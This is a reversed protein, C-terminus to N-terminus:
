MDVGSDWLLAPNTTKAETGRTTERHHPDASASDEVVLATPRPRQVRPKRTATSKVLQVGGNDGAAPIDIHVAEDVVVTNGQGQTAQDNGSNRSDLKAQAEKRCLELLDGNDFGAPGSIDDPEVIGNGGGNDGSSSHESVVPASKIGMGFQINKVFNKAASYFSIIINSFSSIIIFFSIINYQAAYVFYVAHVFYVVYRYMVAQGTIAVVLMVAPPLNVQDGHQEIIEWLLDDYDGRKPFMDKSWDTLDMNLVPFRGAAWELFQVYMMIGQRMLKIMHGGKSKIQDKSQILELQALTMDDNYALKEGNEVRRDLYALISAKKAITEKYTLTPESSRKHKKRSHGSGHSGRSSMSQTSENDSFGNDSADSADDWEDEGEGESGEQDQDFDDGDDFDDRDRKRKSRRSPIAAEALRDLPNPPM